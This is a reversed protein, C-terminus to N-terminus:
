NTETTFVSRRGRRANAVWVFDREKTCRDAFRILVCIGAAKCSISDDNIKKNNNKKWEPGMARGCGGFIEATAVWNLTTSNNIIWFAIFVVLASLISAINMLFLPAPTLLLRTLCDSWTTSNISFPFFYEFKNAEIARQWASRSFQLFVNISNKKWYMAARRNGCFTM